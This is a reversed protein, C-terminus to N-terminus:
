SRRGAAEKAGMGHGRLLFPSLTARALVKPLPSVPQCAQRQRSHRLECNSLQLTDFDFAFNGALPQIPRQFEIGSYTRM